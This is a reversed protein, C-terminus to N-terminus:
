PEGQESAAAPVALQDALFDWDRNFRYSHHVPPLPARTELWRTKRGSRNEFAHICGVGAYAVDGVGLTYEEGDAIYVVEGELMYFAEEVPHDHPHLVVDPQYDVMFMNGLHAGHREDLIMKVAIGSYALLASAMSSSVAPADVPAPIKLYDLDMQSSQWRAFFRARPDRVSLPQGGNRPQGPVFFTDAPDTEPRAQPTQFDIWRCRESDPASWSHTAAVGIFAADDPGLQQTQGDLTLYPNGEVVYVLEEYSHVHADVSGAAALECTGFGTHVAGVARDIHSARRYGLSHGAYPVPTKLGAPDFRTVHHV